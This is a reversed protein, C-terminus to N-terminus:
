KNEESRKGTGGFDYEPVLRVRKLDTLPVEDIQGDSGEITVMGDEFKVLFAKRVKGTKGNSELWELRIQRGIFRRFDAEKKILRDLGPSSV